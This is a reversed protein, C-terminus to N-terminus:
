RHRIVMLDSSNLFCKVIIGGLHWDKCAMQLQAMMAEAEEDEPIEALLLVVYLDDVQQGSLLSEMAHLFAKKGGWAVVVNDGEVVIPVRKGLHFEEFDDKGVEVNMINIYELHDFSSMGDDKPPLHTAMFEVLREGYAVIGNDDPEHCDRDSADARPCKYMKYYEVSATPKFEPDRTKRFLLITASKEHSQPITNSNAPKDTCWHESTM